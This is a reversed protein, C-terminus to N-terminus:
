LSPMKLLANNNSYLGLSKLYNDLIKLDHWRGQFQLSKLDIGNKYAKVVGTHKWSYYTFRKDYDLKNLIRRHQKSLTDRGLPAAGGGLVYYFGLKDEIDLKLLEKKLVTPVVVFGGKRNKSIEAPIYIQNNALDINNYKLLRSENPRIFCYYMLQVQLWMDINQKLYPKLESIQVDNFSWNKFSKSEKLKKLGKLPNSKIIERKELESFVSSLYAFKNNITRAKIDKKSLFDRYKILLQKTLQSAVSVHSGRCYILFENVTGAMSTITKKALEKSKIEIIEHLVTTLKNEQKAKNEQKNTDIHYGEKLLENVEKIYKKAYNYREAKSKYKNIERVRKRTLGNKQVNWVSFEIYWDKNLDGSRDVLRALRFPYM